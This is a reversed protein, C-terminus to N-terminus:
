RSRKRLAWGEFGLEVVSSVLLIAGVVVLVVFTATLPALPGLGASRVIEITGEQEAGRTLRVTMLVGLVAVLLTVFTGTEWVFLQGPSGPDPLRGYLLTTAANNQALQVAVRRAAEDPYTSAYAPMTVVVLAGVIFLWMTTWAAYRRALLGLLSTM